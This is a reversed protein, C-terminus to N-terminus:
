FIRRSDTDINLVDEDRIISLLLTGRDLLSLDALPFVGFPPGWVTSKGSQVCMLARCAKDRDPRRWM